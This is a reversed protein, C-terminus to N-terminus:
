LVATLMGTEVLWFLFYLAISLCFITFFIIISDMIFMYEKNNTIKFIM